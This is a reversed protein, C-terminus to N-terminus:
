DAPDETIETVTVKNGEVTLAIHRASYEDERAECTIASIDVDAASGSGCLLGIGPNNDIILSSSMIVLKGSIQVSDLTSGSARTGCLLGYSAGSRISGTVSLTVNEFTINNINASAALTGFLGANAQQANDQNVTINSMKHGNGNITGTFNGYVLPIKWGKGTFDLDALINYNGTPSGYKIFHDATYINYWNGELMDVYLKMTNGSTTANDENIIGTHKIPTGAEVSTTGNPDLYVTSFTKNDVKPFEHMDLQGTVVNWEPVTINKVYIPDVELSKILDGTKIDYFDYTFRPAWAAYLTLVPTASGEVKAPDVPLKDESFDWKGSYTYAVPKGSESAINGDADLENGEGDTVATRNKYWGVLFYGANQPLFANEKGRVDNDPSVLTLLKEGKSNSPLSSLNYTDVIVTTNTTFYGGNSDYKISVTYGEDDYGSYPGKGGCSALLAAAIVLILTLILLKIRNNMQRIMKRRKQIIM